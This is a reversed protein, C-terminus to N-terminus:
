GAFRRLAVRALIAYGVVLAVLNALAGGLSGGADNLANDLGNLAPKFPFLASVIKVADYLGASVTGSPILALAAIPLSLLFALLSAARVDRTLAGIAVGLGGFGLAGLALAAAIQASRAWEIHRFLALLGLLLLGVLLACIGGLVLKEVVLTTRSVLGRVLRGFAHEERELALMGAAVLVGVFMLAVTLAAAVAYGDLSSTPGDVTTAKVRIPSSIAGLVPASLDLNDIALQAFRRVQEIAARQPDGLPLAREAGGLIQASRKLGLVNFDRGLVNFQGGALLINLYQSAVKTLEHSLAANAKAVQSEITNEVYSRKLPNDANYFVELTPLAGEGALSVASQLKDTVDAPVILAGLAEGSRVKQKAEARSSVRIPDIADFLRKAYDSADLRKGGVNFESAGPAVENLFAVKPKQPPRSVAFGVPLGIVLAYALLLGILLPSRRLIQLDKLLLFRM